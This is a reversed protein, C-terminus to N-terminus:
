QTGVLKGLMSWLHQSVSGNSDVPLVLTFCCSLPTPRPPPLSLVASPSSSTCVVLYLIFLVAPSPWWIRDSQQCGWLTYGVLRRQGGSDGLTQEFESRNLQHHQRVMEDEAVGKEKQIGDKGADPDKGILRSKTDPPCINYSWSWTLGELSYEPNIEKLISQNSRGATWSARLLRRFSFTFHFHWDSLRTLSKAVGHVTAWWAGRDM